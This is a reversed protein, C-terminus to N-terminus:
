RVAGGQHEPCAAVAWTLPEGPRAETQVHGAPLLEGDNRDCVICALAHLQAHTYPPNQQETRPM